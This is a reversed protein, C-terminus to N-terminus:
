VRTSMSVLTVWVGGALLLSALGGGFAVNALRQRWLDAKTALMSVSGLVPRQTFERLAAVAHFTPLARAM